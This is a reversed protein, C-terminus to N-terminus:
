LNNRNFKVITKVVHSVSHFTHRLDSVWFRPILEEPETIGCNTFQLLVVLLLYFLFSKM